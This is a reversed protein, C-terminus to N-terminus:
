GRGSGTAGTYVNMTPGGSSQLQTVKAQGADSTVHIAITGAVETPEPKSARITQQLQQSLAQSTAVLDNNAPIVAGAALPGTAAKANQLHTQLTSEQGTLLRQGTVQSIREAAGAMANSLKEQQLLSERNAAEEAAKNTAIAARADESFPSLLYAV